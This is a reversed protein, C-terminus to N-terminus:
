EVECFSSSFRLRLGPVTPVNPRKLADCAASSKNIGGIRTKDRLDSVIITSITRLQPGNETTDTLAASGFEM